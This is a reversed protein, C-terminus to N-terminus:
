SLELYSRLHSDTSPVVRNGHGNGSLIVMVRGIESLVLVWSLYLGIISLKKQTSLYPYVQGKLPLGLNGGWSSMHFIHNMFLVHCHTFAQRVCKDSWLGLYGKRYLISLYNFLWERTNPSVLKVSSMVCILVILCVIFHGRILFYFIRM